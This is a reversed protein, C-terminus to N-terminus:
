LETGKLINRLREHARSLQKSVTGVARGTMEAIERISKGSFYKLMVVQREHSPLKM